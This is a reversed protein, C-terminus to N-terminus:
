SRGHKKKKKSFYHPQFSYILPYLHDIGTKSGEVSYRDDTIDSEDWQSKAKRREGYRKTTM